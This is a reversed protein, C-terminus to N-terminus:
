TKQVVVDWVVSRAMAGLLLVGEIRFATRRSIRLNGEM